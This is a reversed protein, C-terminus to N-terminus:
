KLVAALMSVFAETRDCYDRIDHGLLLDVGTNTEFRLRENLFPSVTALRGFIDNNCSARLTAM